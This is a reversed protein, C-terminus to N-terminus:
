TSPVETVEDAYDLHHENAVKDKLFARVEDTYEEDTMLFTVQSDELYNPVNQAIRKKPKSSIRGLPTDILIPASFGSIQALASMFSLALVQREGASLSGLNKEGSPGYVHVEYNDTLEIDYPEEKWILDNFFQEVSDETETRVQELIDTECGEVKERSKEVFAIKRLIEEHQKEREVERQWDNKREEVEEKKQEIKGRLQGLEERMDKIRGDIRKRQKELDSVDVDDPINKSELEASIERLEENIDDIDDKIDEVRRKQEKAEGILDDGRDLARQVKRRGNVSKSAAETIKQKFHKLHKRKENDNDINTGCICEGDSLLQDLWWEPIDPPEQGSEERERFLEITYALADNSYAVPGARALSISADERTNQIEEERDELRENLYRRRQQKERVDSDTSDALEQDINEIKENAEQINKELEEEEERLTELEDQAEEYEEHLEQPKGEVDSADRELDKQVSNLHDIARELLQIHSVDLVADKVRQTYGEEFFKDLQEGDFLFYQHVHTPLIERLRTNPNEVNQWDAGFRQRLQLDETISNYEDEGVKATRFKRTFVYQPEDKGLTIEIHGRISNGVDVKELQKLNAIPDAGLGKDNSEDIHPEEDYFCLTIANLINSKGAGNQGEIINIHEDSSIELSIEETGQFQRYNNLEISFIQINNM